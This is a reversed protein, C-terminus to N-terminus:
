VAIKAAESVEKQEPNNPPTHVILVSCPAHHMVYNSVSGMFVESLGRRQHSGMVILDAFNFKARDCIAQEPIGEVQMVEAQVGVAAAQVAFRMLVVKGREKYADYRKQCDEWAKNSVAMPYSAFEPYYTALPMRDDNAFTVVGLLKLGAGALRAQDLAQNFISSCNEDTDLAALITSFM